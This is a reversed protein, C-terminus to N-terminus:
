NLNKGARVQALLDAACDECYGHTVSMLKANVGEVAVWEPAAVDGKADIRRCLCCQRVLNGYVTAM